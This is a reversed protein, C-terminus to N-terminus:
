SLLIFNSFIPEKSSKSDFAYIQRVLQSTEGFLVDFYCCQVIGFPVPNPVVVKDDFICDELVAFLRGNLGKNPRLICLDNPINASRRLDEDSEIVRIIAKLNVIM